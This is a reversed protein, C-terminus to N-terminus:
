TRVRGGWAVQGARLEEYRAFVNDADIELTAALSGCVTELMKRIMEPSRGEMALIRVMPAHTDRPQVAAPVSAEVFTGPPLSEWTAWVHRPPCELVGALDECVRALVASVDVAPAQPLARIEVIPM